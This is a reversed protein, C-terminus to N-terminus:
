RFRQTVRDLVKVTDAGLEDIFRERAAKNQLAARLDHFLDCLLAEAAKRTFSWGAAARGEEAPILNSNIMAIVWDLRKETDKFHQAIEIQARLALRRSEPAKYVDGWDVPGGAEKTLREVLLNSQREYRALDPAGFMMSLVSYFGPLMRRLLHDPKDKLGGDSVFRKEFRHVMIRQFVNERNNGARDRQRSLTYSEVAALFTDKIDGLQARFEAGLEAVDEAGLSGGNDSVRDSLLTMFKTYIADALEDAHAEASGPPTKSLRKPLAPAQDPNKSPPASRRTALRIPLTPAEGQAVPTADSKEFSRQEQISGDPNFITAQRPNAGQSARSSASAGTKPQQDRDM